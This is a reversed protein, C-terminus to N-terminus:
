APVLKAERRLKLHLKLHCSRCLTIGNDVDFRSDKNDAFSLVHHAVIDHKCHKGCDTCCWRDRKYVESAWSKHEKGKRIIDNDDTVGGKWNNNLEGALYGIMGKNWSPTGKKSNSIKKKTEDSMQVGKRPSECGKQFHTKGTNLQKHGKLFRGTKKDRM